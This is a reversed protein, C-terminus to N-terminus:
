LLGEDPFLIIHKAAGSIHNLLPGAGPIKGIACFRSLRRASKGAASRANFFLGHLRCMFAKCLRRALFNKTILRAVEIFM